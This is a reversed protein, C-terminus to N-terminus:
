CVKEYINLVNEYAQALIERRHNAYILSLETLFKLIVYVWLYHRLKKRLYHNFTKPARQQGYTQQRPTNQHPQQNNQQLQTEQQNYGKGHLHNSQSAQQISQSMQQTPQPNQQSLQQTQQSLQLIQQVQRLDQETKQVMHQQSAQEQRM